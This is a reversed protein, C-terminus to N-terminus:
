FTYEMCISWWRMIVSITDHNFDYVNRYAHHECNRSKPACQVVCTFNNMYMHIIPGNVPFLM